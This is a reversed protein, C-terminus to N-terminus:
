TAASILFSSLSQDETILKRWPGIRCHGYADHVQFGEARYWVRAAVRARGVVLKLM